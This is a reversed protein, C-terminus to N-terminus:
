QPEEPREDQSQASRFETPTMGTRHRFWRTFSSTHDFGAKHAIEKIQARLDLLERTVRRLHLNEAFASLSLGTERRFLEDMRRRSLGTHEHIEKWDLTLIDSSNEIVAIATEVRPDKAAMREVHAGAAEVIRLFTALWVQFLGDIEFHHEVTLKDRWHRSREWDCPGSMVGEIAEVLLRARRTLRECETHDLIQCRPNQILDVGHPWRALFGVSLIRTGPDFFQDRPSASPFIWQGAEARVSEGDQAVVCRGRVVLWAGTPPADAVAYGADEPRKESEHAWLLRQNLLAWHREHSRHRTQSTSNPPPM